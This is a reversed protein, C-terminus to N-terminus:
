VSVEKLEKAQAMLRGTAHIKAAKSKCRSIHGFRQSFWVNAGCTPCPLRLNKKKPLNAPTTACGNPIPAETQLLHRDYKRDFSVIVEENARLGKSNVQISVKNDRNDCVFEANAAATGSATTNALGGPFASTPAGFRFFQLVILIFCISNIHSLLVSAERTM